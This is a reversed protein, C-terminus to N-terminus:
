TKLAQGLFIAKAISSCFHALGEQGEMFITLGKPRVIKMQPELPKFGLYGFSPSTLFALPM